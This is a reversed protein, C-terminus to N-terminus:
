SSRAPKRIEERHKWLIVIRVKHNVNPIGVTCTFYWQRKDGRRLEQRDESPIEAALADAKLIRGKWELKRNTKLDGVYGRSRDSQDQKSHIHNLYEANSFSFSSDFTLDGPINRQCVWDVLQCFLVTHDEFTEGTAECQERKKFRRFEM